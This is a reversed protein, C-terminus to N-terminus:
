YWKRRKGGEGGIAQPTWSLSAIPSLPAMRTYADDGQVYYIYQYRPLNIGDKPISPIVDGLRAWDKSDILRFVYFRNSETLAFRTIWAPRQTSVLTTIGRARGRTLIGILGPGAQTGRHFQYAEDIYVFINTFSHYIESLYEDIAFPDSIEAISPRVLIYDAGKRDDAIERKMEARTTVIALSEYEIPLREFVPETKTDFLVVRQSAHRLMWAAAYTKGSGSQGVLLGREGVRLRIDIGKKM